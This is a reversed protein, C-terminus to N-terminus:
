KKEKIRELPLPLSIARPLGDDGLTLDAVVRGDDVTACVPFGLSLLESRSMAVRLTAATGTRIADNSYPLQMTIQQPGSRKSPGSMVHPSKRPRARSGKVREAPVADNRLPIASPEVGVPAHIAIPRYNRVHALYAVGFGVAVLLASALVLRLRLSSILDARGLRWGPEQGPSLREAVLRALRERLEASPERVSGHGLVGLLQDVRRLDEKEARYQREFV